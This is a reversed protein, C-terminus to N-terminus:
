CGGSRRQLIKRAFQRVRQSMVKNNIFKKLEAEFLPQLEVDDKLWVLAKEPWYGSFSTHFIHKLLSEKPFRHIVESYNLARNSVEKLFVTFEKPDIELIPVLPVCRDESDFFIIRDDLQMCWGNLRHVGLKSSGISMLWCYPSSELPPMFFITKM